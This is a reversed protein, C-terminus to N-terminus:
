KIKLTKTEEPISEDFESCENVKIVKKVVYTLNQDEDINKLSYSSNNEEALLVISENEIDKLIMAGNNDQSAPGCYIPSKKSEDVFVVKSYDNFFISDYTALGVIEGENPNITYSKYKPAGGSGCSTPNGWELIIKTDNKSWAIPFYVLPCGGANASKIFFDKLSVNEPYSYIKVVENTSLDKVFIRYEWNSRFDELNKISESIESYVIKDKKNSLISTTIFFGNNPTLEVTEVKKQLRDPLNRFYSKQELTNETQTNNPDVKNNNQEQLQAIHSQLKQIETNLEHKTTKLTSNQWFFVLGGVIIATALSSLIIYLVTKNNQDQNNEQNEM